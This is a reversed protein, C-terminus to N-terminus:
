SMLNQNKASKLLKLNVELAKDNLNDNRSVTGYM